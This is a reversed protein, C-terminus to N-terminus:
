GGASPSTEGGWFFFAAGTLFWVGTKIHLWARSENPLGTLALIGTLLSVWVRTEPLAM